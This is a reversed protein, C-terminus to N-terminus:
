RDIGQRILHRKDHTQSKITLYIPESLAYFFDRIMEIEKETLNKTKENLFKRCQSITLM